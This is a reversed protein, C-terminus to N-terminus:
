DENEGEGEVEKALPSECAVFNGEAVLERCVELMECKECDDCGEHHVTKMGMPTWLPLTYEGVELPWNGGISCNYDRLYAEITRATCSLEKAIDGNSEYEDIEGSKILDMLKLRATRHGKYTLQKM